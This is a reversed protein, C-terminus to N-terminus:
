LTFVIKPAAPNKVAAPISQHLASPGHPASRQSQLLLSSLLVSLCLSAVTERGRERERVYVCRVCVCRKGELECRMPPPSSSVLLLRLLRHTPANNREKWQRTLTEWGTTRGATVITCHTHATPPNESSWTYVWFASFCRVHHM